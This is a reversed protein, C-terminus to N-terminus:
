VSGQVGFSTAPGRRGTAQMMQLQKVPFPRQGRPHESRASLRGCSPSSLVTAPLETCAPADAPRRTTNLSCKCRTLGQSPLLTAPLALFTRGSEGRRPADPLADGGLKLANSWRGWSGHAIDTASTFQQPVWRTLPHQFCSPQSLRGGLVESSPHRFFLLSLFHSTSM